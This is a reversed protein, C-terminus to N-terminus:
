MIIEKLSFNNKITYSKQTKSYCIDAGHDKLVELYRFLTRKSIGIRKSLSEACGTNGQKIAFILYQLKNIYEIYNM